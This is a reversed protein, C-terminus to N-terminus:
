NSLYRKTYQKRKELLMNLQNECKSRLEELKVKYEPKDVLNNLEGPDNKLSFLMEFVPTIGTKEVDAQAYPHPLKHFRIYKWEGDTYGEQAPSDRGTYLQELFLGKRWQTEEGRILPKLSRGTMFPGPKIGAYDLFTVPFDLSSVLEKRTVGRQKADAMPDFVFCPIKSTLDYLLGKGGMGYEGLLLGHDSAFVIVTNEALGQRELEAVLEGVMQDIETIMQYYRFLHEKNSAPKYDYGYTKNRGKDQDLVNRPIHLYPDEPNQLPYAIDLERYKGGYIPHDKLREDLSASESVNSHMKRIKSGHPTAFSISLCFPKEDHETRLFKLANDTHHRNTTVLKKTGDSNQHEFYFPGHSYHGNYYDFLSSIEFGDNDIHWKGVYGTTYGSKQLLAPYSDQWQKMNMKHTSSFGNRNVRQHNGLLISARSPKCTPEAIYANSFRVGKALLSDINPTQVWPHGMGSFSNDRQDDSLIFLLNPLNEKANLLGPSLAIALGAIVSFTYNNM